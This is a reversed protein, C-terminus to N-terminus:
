QQLTRGRSSRAPRAGPVARPVPSQHRPRHRHPRGQDLVAEFPALQPHGSGMKTIDADGDLVAVSYNSLMSVAADLLSVHIESGHGTTARQLLASLVAIVLHAGGSFDALSVGPKIPDDSSEHGTISMVGSRAQVAVDMGPQQALPGFSGYASLSAYILRTNAPM